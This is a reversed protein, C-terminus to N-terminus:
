NNNRDNNKGNINKNSQYENAKSLDIYNLSIIHRDGDDIPNYGYMERVENISFLGMPLVDKALTTKTSVGTFLLKNATLLIECGNEIEYRTFIKNTFELSLQVLM